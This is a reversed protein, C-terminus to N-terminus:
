DTRETIITEVVDWGKAAALAPPYPRHVLTAHVTPDACTTTFQHTSVHPQGRVLRTDSQVAVAAYHPVMRQGDADVLVKAFLVGAQGEHTGGLADLLDGGVPELPTTQCRAEVLLLVARLPEGTPLDHGAGSNTTTVTATLVGATVSKTIALTASPELKTRQRPGIFSHAKVFGEPRLWGGATSATDLGNDQLDAGNWASADPPMHCSQCPVGPSLSTAQWESFTAHIPLEGQVLEHCGACLTAQRFHDRQVLGMRPNAVDHSPGFTLPKWTGLASSSSRESPRLLRLRGAVGPAADLHVSEVRHCVDCQVGYDRARGSAAALDRGGLAGDIGPAHCDACGGTTGTAAVMDAYVALTHPNSAAQRHPSDYWAQNITRHCHACESTNDRRTPEGPDQFVYDPNDLPDYRKLEIALATKGPRWDLSAGIRADPVSAMFTWKGAVNRDLPMLVAGDAGTMRTDLTGGQTVRAGAVPVGDLTVTITVAQIDDDVVDEDTDTDADSDAVGDGRADVDVDVGVGVDGACAVLLVVPLWWRM